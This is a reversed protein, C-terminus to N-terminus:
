PLNPEQAILCRPHNSLDTKFEVFRYKNQAKKVAPEVQWPAMELVLVGDPTLWQSAHDIIHNIAEDGNPESILADSPEWDLVSSDLTENPAIYPPNSIILNFSNKHVSSLADFWDGFVINVNSGKVGLGSLNARAVDICDQSSDTLWVESRDVESAISLGIAGSGTGLDLVKTTRNNTTEIKNLSEIAWGVVEETEPRPILVRSDVMLDLQRFGWSGLVYQLPEGGLRRQVFKDVKAVGKVTAPQSEVEHWDSSSAGCAELVIQKAEFGSEDIESLKVKTEDLLERWIM